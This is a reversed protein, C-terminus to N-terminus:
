QEKGCRRCADYGLADIDLEGGCDCRELGALLREFLERLWTTIMMRKKM